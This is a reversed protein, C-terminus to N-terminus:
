WLTVSELVYNWIAESKRDWRSCINGEDVQLSQSDLVSITGPSDDNLLHYYRWALRCHKTLEVDRQHPHRTYKQTLARGCRSAIQLIYSHVPIM